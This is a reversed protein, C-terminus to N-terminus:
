LREKVKKILLHVKDKYFISNTVLIIFTWIIFVIVASFIWKIITNAQMPLMFMIWVAIIANVSDLMILKIFMKISRNFINKSNYVAMWVTQYLMAIFTGIAVGILGMLKVTIISVLLNIIAAIFYNSQTEKFRGSAKIMMHYPLRICHLAHALVILVAFEFQNYNADDIGQTYLMVFPVILTGTCGFILIVLNHIAWEVWEFFDSLEQKNNRAWLEGLIAEIGNSVSTFLTKVGYIIMHYVGYISVNSLTSFMTLVITDTNDLVVSSVHQAIGNWKQKIPEVSYTMRRNISYHKNIYIRNYIPKILLIFSSVIKVSQISCGAYILIVCVVTNFILSIISSCYNIYGKQDAILLIIDVLGFYYQVFLNLSIAFILLAVDRYCFVNHTIRPYIFILVISYVILVLGIKRFFNNASTIVRSIEENDGNVLPKYLSAQIVAGIGLQMFSIISLFQTISQVLGNVESGYFSLFVRPLILSSIIALVEYIWSSITNFILKKTRM